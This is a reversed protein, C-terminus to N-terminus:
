TSLVGERENSTTFFFLKVEPTHTELEKYPFQNKGNNIMAFKIVIM